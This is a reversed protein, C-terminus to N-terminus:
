TEHARLHTYSVPGTGFGPDVHEDAVVPIRRGTFPLEIDSGILSSFRKDEPHVAVGTDGLM